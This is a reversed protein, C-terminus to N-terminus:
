RSKAPTCGPSATLVTPRAPASTSEPPVVRPTTASVRVTATGVNRSRRPRRGVNRNGSPTATATRRSAAAPIAPSNAWCADSSTARRRALEWSPACVIKVCAVATNTTGQATSATGAAVVAKGASDAAIDAGATSPARYSRMRDRARRATSSPPSTPAPRRTARAPGTALSTSPTRAPVLREPPLSRRSAMTDNAGPSGPKATSATVIRASYARRAVRRAPAATTAPHTVTITVSTARTAANGDAGAADRSPAPLEAPIVTAPANSTTASTETPAPPASACM